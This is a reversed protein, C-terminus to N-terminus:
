RAAAAKERAVPACTSARIILEPTLDPEPEPTRGEVLADLRRVAQRGTESAHGEVSTLGPSMAHCISSNDFGILSIQQPVAIGQERLFLLAGLAAEDNACIMADAERGRGLLAAAADHGGQQTYGYYLLLSPDFPVNAEDLAARYGLYRQVGVERSGEGALRDLEEVTRVDKERFPVMLAIRRRGIRLLYRAAMYASQWGMSLHEGDNGVDLAVVPIGLREEVAERSATLVVPRYILGDVPMASLQALREQEIRTSGESTMLILGRDLAAAERMAGEAMQRFVDLDVRPLLMALLGSRGKRTYRASFQPHYGLRQAAEEVLARYDAGVKEDGNLVRSVTATSVHAARAVDHITTKGM